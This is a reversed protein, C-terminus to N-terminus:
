REVMCHTDLTALYLACIGSNAAPQRGSLDPRKLKSHPVTGEDHRGTSGMECTPLRPRYGEAGITAGLEKSTVAEVAVQHLNEPLKPLVPKRSTACDCLKARRRGAGARGLSGQSFLLLSLASSYGGLARSHM